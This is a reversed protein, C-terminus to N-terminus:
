EVTWFRARSGGPAAKLRVPRACRPCHGAYADGQQNLYVRAYVNCCKFLMSISPRPKKEPKADRPM